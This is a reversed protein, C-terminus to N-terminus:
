PAQNLCWSWDARLAVGAWPRAPLLACTKRLCVSPTRPAPDTLCFGIGKCVRVHGTPSTVVDHSGHPEFNQLHGGAEAGDRADAM